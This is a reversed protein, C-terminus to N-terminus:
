LRNECVSPARLETVQGIKWLFGTLSGLAKTQPWHMKQKMQSGLFYGTGTM